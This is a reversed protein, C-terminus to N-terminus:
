MEQKAPLNKAVSGQFSRRGKNVTTAGRGYLAPASLPFERKRTGTKTRCNNEYIKKERM